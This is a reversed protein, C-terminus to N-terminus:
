NPTPESVSDIVLVDMRGRRSDLKLGLQDQLAQTFPTEVSDATPPRPPGSVLEFVFEGSKDTADSVPSDMVM